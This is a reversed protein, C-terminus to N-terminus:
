MGRYNPGGGGEPPTWVINLRPDKIDCTKCHLCDAAHILLRNEGAQLAIEYVGAPCYRVEPAAFRPLNLALPAEADKLLLHCSQDEAHAVGALRLSSARDFSILGDPAPYNIATVSRKPLLAAHDSGKHALTWQMRIGMQAAWLETGALAGGVTKGLRSLWPKFNRGDLLDSWLGSDELAAPYDALEDGSRGESCADFAAEAALMGSLLAGHVGKARAPDLLGAACGILAGGPFILDPVSQPGGCAVARAGFGLREGSQLFERLAPHTKASQFADFPSFYPNRYDLHAVLGVAALGQPLHYMFVGGLAEKGLPWGAAHVVLGAQHRAPPLRWLEKLGLAYKQPAAAARLTFQAELQGTLSGRAGEALLTYRARIAVGPTFDAKPQGQRDRGADGTLVGALVGDEIIPTVAAFGACIDVGLAEARQGLWHCIDGLSAVIAGRQRLAPPLLFTPLATACDEDLWLNREEGAAVWAFGSQKRWDPLLADLGVPDIVAGSVIHAGVAAGKELLCVSIEQGTELACQKLRIAAALGAPGAGVILVDYELTERQNM